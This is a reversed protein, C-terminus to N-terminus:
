KKYKKLYKEGDKKKIEQVKFDVLIDTSRPLEDCSITPIKFREILLYIPEQTNLEVKQIIPDIPMDYYDFSTSSTAYPGSGISRSCRISRSTAEGVTIKHSGADAALELYTEAKLVGQEKDDLFVKADPDKNKKAKYIIVIKTNNENEGVQAMAPAPASAFICAGALLLSFLLSMSTCKMTAEKLHIETPLFV